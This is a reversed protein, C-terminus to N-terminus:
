FQILCAKRSHNLKVIEENNLRKHGNGYFDYIAGRKLWPPSVLYLALHLNGYQNKFHYYYM